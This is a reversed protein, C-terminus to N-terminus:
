HATRTMVRLYKGDLPFHFVDDDQKQLVVSLGMTANPLLSLHQMIEDSYNCVGYLGSAIHLYIGILRYNNAEALCRYFCPHYNFFGHNLYGQFPLAHYMIGGPVCLNHINQFVSAQDFCHESTGNNTVLNFTNKFGYETTLNKNLDFKHASHRGDLDICEYLKFGLGSYFVRPTYCQEGAPIQLNLFKKFVLDMEDQPAHLDQSGLEIVSEFNDFWGDKWLSILLDFTGPGLGM